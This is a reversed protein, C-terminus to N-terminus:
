VEEMREAERLARLITESPNKTGWRVILATVIRDYEAEEDERYFLQVLRIQSTPQLAPPSAEKPAPEPPGGYATFSVEEPPRPTQPLFAPTLAQLDSASWGFPVSGSTQLSSQLLRLLKEEDREALEASRRLTLLIEDEEEPSVDIVVAPAETEGAERAIAVRAHGDLLHGTRENWLASELWGYRSLSYAILEKQREPHKAWNEPHPLLKEIPVMRTPFVTDKSMM